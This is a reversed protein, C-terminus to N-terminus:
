AAQLMLAPKMPTFDILLVTRHGCQAGDKVFVAEVSHAVLDDKVIYSEFPNILTFSARVGSRPVNEIPRGAYVPDTVYNEGGTANVFEILHAATYHEGDRHVVNPSAVAPQNPTAVLKVIHMGVQIPHCLEEETFPCCAFDTEILRRIFQSAYLDEEIAAFLRRKGGDQPNLSLPQSYEMLKHGAMQIIPFQHYQKVWPLYILKGYKRFRFNGQCTDDKPLFHTECRFTGFERMMDHDLMFDDASLRIYGKQALQRKYDEIDPKKVHKM